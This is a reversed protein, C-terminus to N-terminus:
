AFAYTGGPIDDVLVSADDSLILPAGISAGLNTDGDYNTNWYVGLLEVSSGLPTTFSGIFNIDLLELGTREIYMEIIM